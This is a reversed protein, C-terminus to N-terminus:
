GGLKDLFVGISEDELLGVFQDVVQGNKFAVVHPISSVQFSAFHQIGTTENQKNFRVEFEGAVDGLDDVNCKALLFKGNRSDM